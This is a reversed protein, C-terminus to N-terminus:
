HRNGGLEIPVGRGEVLARTHIHRLAAVDEIALGLSKFVTISARSSRGAHTGRVLDGLEARFHSDDIVGEERPILFDGSEALVSERRDAFFEARRMAASDLERATRLSAGVANVHTGDRLWAGELVPTRSATITCVIDAERVAAEASTVVEVDIALAARAREALEHARSGAHAASPSWIQARIIPRVACMAELHPLALVGAGLLAVSSADDRALLRTALGSVAATRIATISSADAIALLTGFEADFLLVVGIHSDFPTADNGPFITIVKAGLSATGGAGLIAPMTAFANPTDPLRLVTRLPLVADGDALHRLADQMVEICDAMPLLARVDHDSLLLTPM